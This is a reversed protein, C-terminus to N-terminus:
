IARPFFFVVLHTTDGASDLLTGDLTGSGSSVVGCRGGGAFAFIVFSFLLSIHCAKWCTTAALHCSSFRRSYREEDQSLNM